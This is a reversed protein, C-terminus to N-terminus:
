KMYSSEMTGESESIIYTFQKKKMCTTYKKKGYYITFSGALPSLIRPTIASIKDTFLNIRASVVHKDTEDM